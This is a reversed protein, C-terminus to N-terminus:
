RPPASCCRHQIHSQTRLNDDQFACWERKIRAMFGSALKLGLGEAVKDLADLVTDHVDYTVELRKRDASVMISKVGMTKSLSDVAAMDAPQALDLTRTVFNAGSNAITM